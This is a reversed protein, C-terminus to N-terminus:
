RRRLKVIRRRVSQEPRAYLLEDRTEGGALQFPVREFGCRALTEQDIDVRVQATTTKYDPWIAIVIGNPALIETWRVLSRKWLDEVTVREEELFARPENGQLPTGLYGETVITDISGHELGTPETADAVRLQIDAAEPVLREAQAWAINQKADDIIRPSLDSGYITPIGGRAAAELLTGSGCFPDFFTAHGPGALHVLMDALKPPLMGNKANRRPREIDIKTWLDPDQVETTVFVLAQGQHGVITVDYGENILDLKHVAAPSTHGDPDAFWRISRETSAKLLRKTELPFRHKDPIGDGFFSVAFTLKGEGRPTEAMWDVLREAKLEKTPCSFALAAVKTCGTLRTLTPAAEQELLVIGGVLTAAGDPYQSAIEARSLEAHIGLFVAYTMRVNYATQPPNVFPGFDPIKRM